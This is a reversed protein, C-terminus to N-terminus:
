ATVYTKRIRRQWRRGAEAWGVTQILIKSIRFDRESEVTEAMAVSAIQSLAFRNRIRTAM